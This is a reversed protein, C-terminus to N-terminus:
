IIEIVQEFITSQWEPFLEIGVPIPMKKVLSFIDPLQKAEYLNTSIYITM